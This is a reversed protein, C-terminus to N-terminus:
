ASETKITPTLEHAKPVPIPKGKWKRLLATGILLIWLWAYVLGIVVKQSGYQYVGSLVVILAVVSLSSGFFWHLQDSFPIFQRNPSWQRDIYIGLPVQVLITGFIIM